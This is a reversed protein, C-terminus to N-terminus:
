GGMFGGGKVLIPGGSDSGRYGWFLREVRKPMLTQIKGFLQHSNPSVPSVSALGFGLM